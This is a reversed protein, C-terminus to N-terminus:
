LLAAVQISMSSFQIGLSHRDPAFAFNEWITHGNKSLLGGVVDRLTSIRRFRKTNTVAPANSTSPGLANDDVDLDESRNGTM